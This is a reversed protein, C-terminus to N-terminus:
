HRFKATEQLTPHHLHMETSLGMIQKKMLENAHKENKLMLRMLQLKKKIMDSDQELRPSNVVSTAIDNLAESSKRKGWIEKIESHIQSTPSVRNSLIQSSPSARTLPHM